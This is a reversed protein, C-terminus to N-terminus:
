RIAIACRQSGTPRRATWRTSRIRSRGQAGRRRAAPEVTEHAVVATARRRRKGASLAYSAERERLEEASPGIAHPERASMSRARCSASRPRTRPFRDAAPLRRPQVAGRSSPGAGTPERDVADPGRDGGREGGVPRRLGRPDGQRRRERAAPVRVQKAKLETQARNAADTLQRQSSPPKASCTREAARSREVARRSRTAAGRHRPRIEVVARVHPDSKVLEGM